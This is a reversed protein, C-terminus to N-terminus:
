SSESVLRKILPHTNNYGRVIRIWNSALLRSKLENQGRSIENALNQNGTLGFAVAGCYSMIGEYGIHGHAIKRKEDYSISAIDVVIRNCYVELRSSVSQRVGKQTLKSIIHEYKPSVTGNALDIQWSLHDFIGHKTSAIVNRLKFYKFFAVM